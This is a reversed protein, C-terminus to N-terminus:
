TKTVGQSPTLLRTPVDNDWPQRRVMEIVDVEGRELEGTAADILRYEQTQRQIPQAHLLVVRVDGPAFHCREQLAAILGENHLHGDGFNWGLVTGAVLEGEVLAYDLEDRPACARPVLTFLARGHSHLGRFAYGIYLPIDALEKGYFKELQVHPLPAARTTGAEFKALGEETFCWVSTDWNGAYYRMALLFSVKQPWINGVTVTTVVVLLLAAIALPHQADSFGIGADHVFLSGVAFGMFVNWELPVGMPMSTLINLHFAIMVVAAVTTVAGGRSLLLVAPVVLEVATGGHALAAALPSPRLDDPFHQHLRRKLAKSRFVPSNSMMAAVVFPFHRNLKSVAAGWWIAVVVLKAALLADVGPLLFAVLLTGYVETRAALFITKDRLGILTLLALVTVLRSVELLGGRTGASLLATVLAVLLGAYLAADVLTRRTGGTGPLRTPWPPLRITGPRLWYLFSGLPPSIRLNLPGFGCGLGLVEFLMTWLTVKEFVIPQSWWTGVATFGDVGPTSLAFLMGGLVYLGIKLAYLVFVIDPTGFGVEALHRAMPKMREARTGTRWQELDLEPFTPQTLGM